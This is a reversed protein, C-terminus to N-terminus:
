NQDNIFRVSNEKYAGEILINERSEENGWFLFPNIIDYQAPLVLERMFTMAESPATIAVTGVDSLIVLTELYEFGELNLRVSSTVTKQIKLRIAVDKLIGKQAAALKSLDCSDNRDWIIEISSMKIMDPIL